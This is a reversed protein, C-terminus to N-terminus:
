RYDLKGLGEENTGKHRGSEAQSRLEAHVMLHGGWWWLGDADRSPLERCFVSLRRRIRLSTTVEADLTFVGRRGGIGKV